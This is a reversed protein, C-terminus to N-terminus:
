IVPVMKLHANSVTFCNKKSIQNNLVNKPHARGALCECFFTEILTTEASTLTM